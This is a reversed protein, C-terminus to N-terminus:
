PGAPTPLQGFSHRSPVCGPLLHRDIGFLDCLEPSWDLTAPSWLQTRAANAPDAALPSEELLRFLLFSALPGLVADPQGDTVQGAAQRVEPLNELCWRMKSAGYHPSLVLGSLARVRRAQPQMRKLWDAHRTDQWSIVPSLAAGDTRRWAC